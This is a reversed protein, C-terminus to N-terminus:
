KESKRAKLLSIAASASSRVALNEDRLAQTLPGVARADGTSALALAAANRVGWYEDKLAKILLEVARADGTDGLACAADSRVTKDKHKLAKILGEIDKKAKLKEINPKGGFIGM